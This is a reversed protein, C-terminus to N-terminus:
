EHPQDGELLRVMRQDLRRNIWQARDAWRNRPPRGPIFVKEAGVQLRTLAAEIQSTAARHRCLYVIANLERVMSAVAASYRGADILVPGRRRIAAVWDTPQAPPPCQASSVIAISEKGLRTLASGHESDVAQWTLIRPPQACVDLRAPFQPDDCLDITTLPLSGRYRSVLRVVTATVGTRGSAGLVCLVPAVRTSSLTQDILSLLIEDDEPLRVDVGLRVVSHSYSRAAGGRDTIELCGPHLQDSPIQGILALLQEVHKRLATDDISLVIAM